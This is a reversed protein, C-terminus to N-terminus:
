RSRAPSPQTVNTNLDEEEFRIEGLGTGPAGEVLPISTADSEERKKKEGLLQLAMKDNDEKKVLV